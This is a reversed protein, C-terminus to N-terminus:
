KAKRGLLKFVGDRLWTNAPGSPNPIRSLGMAKADFLHVSNDGVAAFTTVKRGEENLYSVLVLDVGKVAVV